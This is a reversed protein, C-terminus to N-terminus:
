FSRKLRFHQFLKVGLMFLIVSEVIVWFLHSWVNSLGEGYIMIRRIADTAFATPLLDAFFLTKGAITFLPLPPMPYMAGSFFVLPMIFLMSLNAAEGDNKAFCATIMGCGTATLSLILAFIGLLIYSGATQLGCIHAVGVTIAVQVACVALQALTIGGLLSWGSVNALRLRQFAGGTMERVLLIAAYMVGFAIGFIIVGPVGFQFDNLNGTGEVYDYAVVQKPQQWGTKEEIFARLPEEFMVSLFNGMDSLPDKLLTFRPPRAPDANKLTATFDAPITLLAEVKWENLIIRAESSSHIETVTLLPAGDFKENRLHAILESGFAGEDRNDVLLILTSALNKAGGGYAFFYMCVLMAPFVLFLVLLQPDRLAEKLTKWAITLSKL